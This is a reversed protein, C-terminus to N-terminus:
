FPYGISLFFRGSKEKSSGTCGNPECEPPTIIKTTGDPQTVSTVVKFAHTQASIPWGFEARIPGIPTMYRLGAGIGQRLGDNGELALHIDGVDQWVQAVDYFLTAGLGGWIPIRLEANFSLFGNGGLIHPGADCDYAALVPFAGACSGPQGDTRKTAHTDIDVTEGPVGLLDTDFARNTSRGGAFNREAIPVQINSPGYPWITGLRVAAALVTKGLPRFWASQMSIKHYRAEAKLFPFAFKYGATVYYGRHPDIIDDRRDYFFNPGITSQEIPQDAKPFNLLEIPSLDEPNVPTIREYAYRLAVRLYKGHYRSTEFVTGLRRIDVDQIPEVMYYTLV